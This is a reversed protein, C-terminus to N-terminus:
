FEDQKKKRIDDESIWTLGPMRTFFEVAGHLFQERVPDKQLKIAIHSTLHSFEHTNPLHVNLPMLFEADSMTDPPPPILIAEILVGRKIIDLYSQEIPRAGYYFFFIHGSDKFWAPSEALLSLFSGYKPEPFNWTFISEDHTQAMIKVQLRIFAKRAGEGYLLAM